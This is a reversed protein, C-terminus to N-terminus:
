PTMDLSIAPVNGVSPVARPAAALLRSIADNMHTREASPLTPYKTRLPFIITAKRALTGGQQERSKAVTKLAVALLEPSAASRKIAIVDMGKAGPTRRVVAHRVRWGRDTRWAAWSRWKM